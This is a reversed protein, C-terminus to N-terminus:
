TLIVENWGNEDKRMWGDLCQRLKGVIWGIFPGPM